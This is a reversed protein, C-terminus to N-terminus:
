ESLMTLRETLLSMTRKRSTTSIKENSLLAAIFKKDLVPISEDKEDVLTSTSSQQSGSCSLASEDNQGPVARGICEM